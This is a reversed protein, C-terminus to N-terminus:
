VTEDDILLGLDDSLLGHEAVSKNYDTLAAQNEALWRKERESRLLQADDPLEAAVLLDARENKSPPHSQM